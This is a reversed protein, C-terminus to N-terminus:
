TLEAFIRSGKTDLWRALVLAVAAYVLAWLLLYSAAGIRYGILLYLGALAAGFGWSSFLVIGVAGSQKIPATEDTWNLIPMRVGVTLGFMALFAAYVLPTVCVLLRVPLSAPVILAACVSAFLLPIETLILQVSAKARLVTRALVPMSQPIWLSKGELSVSPAAMDNMSCAICLMTCVLVAATDPMKAFVQNLAECIERGKILLLVGCAPILLTGLGCNLMYNPSSTFRGFEKSLLAGFVTTQRVPKEVYRVKETNGSSTAIDLFSRSMIHWVLALAIAVAAIYIAAALWDGEGIRGFQYLAYVAGKIKEGYTQANAIIDRIYDNAKFYFFYYAGVFVLSVLVTVFSKNKLRQSIRAVAWGLVCSLLFVILTVILFLLVGCVVRSVTCGAVIWYVILAPIMVTASYMTGMLYVNMLRAAMITRVPIPLSLLLDNDKALYLSSYTNFVSGFAGLFIAIGSMLLFYLWGMGAETLAGCLTLSLYTFIGGLMGVMIVFFFVFWAAIAAKSRMRNKKADYFYSRFVEALQKKVLVKLM